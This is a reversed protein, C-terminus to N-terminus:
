EKKIGCAGDCSPCFEGFSESKLGMGKKRDAELLTQMREKDAESMGLEKYYAEIYRDILQSFAIQQDEKNDKMLGLLISKPTKPDTAKPEQGIYTVFATEVPRCIPCKTVFFNQRQRIIEKAQDKPFNDVELGALVAEGLFDSTRMKSFDRSKQKGIITLAMRIRLKVTDAKASTRLYAYLKADAAEYLKRNLPFRYHFLVPTTSFDRFLVCPWVGRPKIKKKRYRQICKASDPSATLILEMGFGTQAKPYHFLGPNENAYFLIPEEGKLERAEADKQYQKEAVDEHGIWTSIFVADIQEYESIYDSLNPIEFHTSHTRKDKDGLTKIQDLILYSKTSSEQAQIFIPFCVLLLQFINKM